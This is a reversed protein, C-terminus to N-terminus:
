NPPNLVFSASHLDGSFGWHQARVGERLGKQHLSLATVEFHGKALLSVNLRRRGAHSATLMLGQEDKIGSGISV